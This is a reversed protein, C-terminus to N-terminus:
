LLQIHPRARVVQTQDCQKRLSKLWSGVGRVDSTHSLHRALSQAAVCPEGPTQGCLHGGLREGCQQGGGLPRGLGELPLRRVGARRGALCLKSPQGRAPEWCWFSGRPSQWVRHETQGWCGPGQPCPPPLAPHVCPHIAHLHLASHPGRPECSGPLPDRSTWARAM